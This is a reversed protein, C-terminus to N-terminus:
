AGEANRMVRRANAPLNFIETPFHEAIFKVITLATYVGVIKNDADLVPVHRFGDKVVTRILDGMSHDKTLTVPNATMLEQIPTEIAVTHGAVKDLYDRDTFIGIVRSGDCILVNDAKQARMCAIVEQVPSDPSVILPALHDVYRLQQSNLTEEITEDSYSPYMSM